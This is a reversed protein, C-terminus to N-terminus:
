GGEYVWNDMRIMVMDGLFYFRVYEMREILWEEEERREFM